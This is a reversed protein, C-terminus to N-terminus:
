VPKAVSQVSAVSRIEPYALTSPYIVDLGAGRLWQHMFISCNWWRTGSNVHPIEEVEPLM